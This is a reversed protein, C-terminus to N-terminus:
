LYYEIAKKPDNLDYVANGLGILAYLEKTNFKLATEYYNISNKTHGTEFLLNGMAVLGPVHKPNISLCKKISEAAKDFKNSQM